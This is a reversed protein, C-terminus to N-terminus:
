RDKAHRPRQFVLYGSDLYQAQSGPLLEHWHRTAFSLVVLTRLDITSVLGSGDPLYEPWTHRRGDIQPDLTAIPTPDGGDAKVRM